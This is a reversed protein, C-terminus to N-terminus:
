KPDEAHKDPSLVASPFAMGCYACPGSISFKHNLRISGGVICLASLDPQPETPPTM